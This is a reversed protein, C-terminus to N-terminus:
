LAEARVPSTRGWVAGGPGPECLTGGEYGGPTAPAVQGNPWQLTGPRQAATVSEDPEVTERVPQGHVWERRVLTGGFSATFGRPTVAGYGVSAPNMSYHVSDVIVGDARQMAYCEWSLRWSKRYLINLAWVETTATVPVLSTGPISTATVAGVGEQLAFVRLTAAQRIAFNPAGATIAYEYDIYEVYNGYVDYVIPVFSAAEIGTFGVEIIRFEPSIVKAAPGADFHVAATDPRGIPRGEVTAEAVLHCIGTLSPRLYQNSTTDSGPALQTTASVAQCFPDLTRWHVTVPPLPVRGSAETIGDGERFERKLSVQLVVPTHVVLSDAPQEGPPRVYTRQGRGDVIRIELNDPNAVAGPGDGGDCAALVLLLAPALQGALAFRPRRM